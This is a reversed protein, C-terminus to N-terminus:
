VTLPRGKDTWQFPQAMTKNLSAMFALIRERVDEGSTCPGRKRVRRVVRRCWRASQNLGRPHTPTSLCRLRHSVDRVCAARPSRAQGRGRQEKAGREAKSGWAAAVLRVWAASTQLHLQAGSLLWSAEPATARTPASPEACDAATRSPGGTPAVGAGPAVDCHASM